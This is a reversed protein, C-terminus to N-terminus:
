DLLSWDQEKAWDEITQWNVESFDERLKKIDVSYGVKNFWVYMDAMDSNQERMYEPDFGEYAIKKGSAKSIIEAIEPGTLEDGAFNFRKGFVSERREVLAAVFEGINKVSVHQLKRDDPMGQKIKGEEKITPLMFPALYNDIFFVPASITYPMDLTAIYEEVKYKSEFHPIGTNKDADSVSGFIFHGVGAKKAADAITMGQKTEAETGDEFSTTMAYITDVGEAAKVLSDFDTLDGKFVEVGQDILKKATDSDPNRTITRIKHGKPLLAKVVSGGQNGTAGIVLVTLKESM